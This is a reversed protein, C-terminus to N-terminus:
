ISPAIPEWRWRTACRPSCRAGASRSSWSKARGSSEKIRLAQELAFEDYPNLIWTVGAPDLMKGDAAVKVRTETDAVQKLL